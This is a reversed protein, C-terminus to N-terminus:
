YKTHAMVGNRGLNLVGSIKCNLLCDGLVNPYWNTLIHWHKAKAQCWCLSEAIVCHHHSHMVPTIPRIHINRQQIKRASRWDMTQATFNIQCQGKWKLIEYLIYVGRYMGSFLYFKVVQREFGWQSESRTELSQVEDRARSIANNAKTWRHEQKGVSEWVRASANVWM